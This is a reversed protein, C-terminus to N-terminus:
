YSCSWEVVPVQQNAGNIAANIQGPLAVPAGVSLKSNNYVIFQVSSNGATKVVFRSGGVPRVSLVPNILPIAVEQNYAVGPKGYINTAQFLKL